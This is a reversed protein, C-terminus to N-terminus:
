APKNGWTGVVRPLCGLTDPRRAYDYLEAVLRRIEDETALGEAIVADAINEMTIPSMLKAEGEIGAPQVIRVQVGGFGAQALMAPLRLGMDPDGGRARVANSYLEVFRRAAKSDPYAVLGSFDVDEIVIAGGPKLAARMNALAKVPDPLHSLLFRAHVLDFEARPAEAMIDAREFRLNSLGQEAGERRAIALKEEDIDTALVSGTSGVIRAMDFALDGGGSAVELCTMGARLGAHDLLALTSERMVRALIRLRERGEIGGRIIYHSGAM